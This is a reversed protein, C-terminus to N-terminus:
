VSDGIKEENTTDTNTSKISEKIIDLSSYIVKEYQEELWKNPDIGKKKLLEEALEKREQLERNVQKKNKTM